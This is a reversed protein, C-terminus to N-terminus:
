SAIPTPGGKVKSQERSLGNGVSQGRPSYTAERLCAPAWLPGVLEQEKASEPCFPLAAKNLTSCLSNISNPFPFSPLIGVAAEQCLSTSFM